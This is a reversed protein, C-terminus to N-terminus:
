VDKFRTRQLIPKNAQWFARVERYLEIKVSADQLPFAKTMGSVPATRTRHAAILYTLESIVDVGILFTPAPVRVLRNYRDLEVDVPLRVGTPTARTTGKVQVFFFGQSHDDAAIVDVILDIIPYKEGLSTVRFLPRRYKGGVPRSLDRTAVLEAFSGIQDSTTFAM